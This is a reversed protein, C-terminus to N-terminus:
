RVWRLDVHGRGVLYCAALESQQLESGVEIVNGSGAFQGAIGALLEVLDAAVELGKAGVAEDVAHGAGAAGMGVADGCFDFLGNEVVGEFVGAVTGGSDFLLQTHAAQLDRGAANTTHPLAVAEEGLM